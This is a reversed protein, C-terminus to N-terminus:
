TTKEVIKQVRRMQKNRPSTLPFLTGFQAVVGNPNAMVPGLLLMSLAPLFM